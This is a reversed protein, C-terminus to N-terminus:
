TEAQIQAIVVSINDEGGNRNALEILAACAREPRASESVIRQIDADQMKEWVGDSCLVLWQGPKLVERFLDVEVSAREGLGRLILNRQPHTRVEEERIHNGDVLAQVLSHDRSIRRYGERTVLYARSDGVNVVFAEYGLLLAGVLTTGMDSHAQQRARNIARNAQEVAGKILGGFEVETGGPPPRVSLADVVESRITDIALRSAVEGQAAGGVGDAVLLLAASRNLRATYTSLDLALISDENVERKRGVDTGAALSFRAKGPISKVEM